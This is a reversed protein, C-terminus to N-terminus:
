SRSLDKFKRIKYPYPLSGKMNFFGISHWNKSDFTYKFHQLVCETSLHPQRQFNINSYFSLFHKVKLVQATTPILPSPTFTQPFSDLEQIIKWMFSPQPAFGNLVEILRNFAKNKFCTSPKLFPLFHIPEKFTDCFKFVHEYYMTFSDFFEEPFSKINPSCVNNLNSHLVNDFISSTSHGLTSIHLQQPDLGLTSFLSHCQCPFPKVSWKKCWSIHNCFLKSIKPHGKFTVKTQSQLLLLM